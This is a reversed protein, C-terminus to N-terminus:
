RPLSHDSDAAAPPFTMTLRNGGPLQEWVLSGAFRRLLRLGHGGSNLESDELERPKMENGHASTEGRGLPQDPAFHPADDDITFTLGKKGNRTFSINIAHNPEGGYGHRIINSLAEELCLDIAYRTDPSISHELALADVWPWVLKLDTLRSRLTLRAEAKPTFIKSM